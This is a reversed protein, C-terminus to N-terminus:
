KKVLFSFFLCRVILSPNPHNDFFLPSHVHTKVSLYMNSFIFKRQLSSSGFVTELHSIDFQGIPLVLVEISKPLSLISSLPINPISALDLYRLHNLRSLLVVSKDTIKVSRLILKETHDFLNYQLLQIFIRDDILSLGTLNVEKFKGLDIARQILPQSHFLIQLLTNLDEGSFLQHGYVFSQSLTLFPDLSSPSLSLAKEWQKAAETYNKSDSRALVVGLYVRATINNPDIQNAAEFDSLAKPM